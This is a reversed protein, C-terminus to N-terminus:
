YGAVMLATLPVDHKGEHVATCHPSSASCDVVLDPKWTKGGEYNMIVLLAINFQWSM